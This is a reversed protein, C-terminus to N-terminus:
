LLSPVIAEKLGTQSTGLFIMRGKTSSRARSDVQLVIIVGFVVNSRVKKISTLLPHGCPHRKQLAPNIYRGGLNLGM